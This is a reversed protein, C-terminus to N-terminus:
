LASVLLSCEETKEDHDHEILIKADPVPEITASTRCIVSKRDGGYDYWTQIFVTGFAYTINSRKRPKERLTTVSKETTFRITSQQNALVNISLQRRDEYSELVSPSNKWVELFAAGALQGVPRIDNCEADLCFDVQVDTYYANSRMEVSALEGETPNEYSACGALVGVVAVVSLKLQVSRDLLGM